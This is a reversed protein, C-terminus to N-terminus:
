AFSINLLLSVDSPSYHSLCNISPLLSCILCSNEIIYPLLFFALPVNHASYISADNCLVATMPEGGSYLESVGGGGRLNTNSDPMVMWISLVPQFSNVFLAIHSSPLGRSQHSNPSGLVNVGCTVVVLTPLLSLSLSLRYLKCISQWLM